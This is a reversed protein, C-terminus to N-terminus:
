TKAFNPLMWRPDSRRPRCSWCLGSSERYDDNLEWNANPWHNTGIEKIAFQEDLSSFRGWFNIKKCISDSETRQQCLEFHNKPGTRQNAKEINKSNFKLIRKYISFNGKKRKQNHDNREKPLSWFEQFIITLLYLNSGQLPSEHNGRPWDRRLQNRM